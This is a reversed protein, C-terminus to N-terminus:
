HSSKPNVRVRVKVTAAVTKNIMMMTTSLRLTVKRSGNRPWLLCNLTLNHQKMMLFYIISISRGAPM